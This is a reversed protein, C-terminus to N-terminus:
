YSVDEGKCKGERTTEGSTDQATDQSSPHHSSMQSRPRGLFLNSHFIDVLLRSCLAPVQPPVAVLKCHPVRCRCLEGVQGM